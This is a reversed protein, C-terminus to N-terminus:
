TSYVQKVLTDNFSTRPSPLDACVGCHLPPPPTAGYQQGTIMHLLVIIANSYVYSAPEFAQSRGKGGLSRPGFARVEM